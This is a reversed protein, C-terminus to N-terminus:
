DLIKAEEKQRAYLKKGAEYYKDGETWFPRQPDNAIFRASLVYSQFFKYLYDYDLSNPNDTVQHYYKTVEGDFSNFGM